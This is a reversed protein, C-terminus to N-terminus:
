GRIFLFFSLFCAAGCAGGRDWATRDRQHGAGLALGPGAAAGGGQVLTREALGRSSVARSPSLTAPHDFILAPAQQNRLPYFRSLKPEPGVM